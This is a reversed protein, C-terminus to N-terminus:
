GYEKSRQNIIKMTKITIKQSQKHMLHIAVANPKIKLLFIRWRDPRLEWINKSIKKLDKQSLSFGYKRFLDLYELVRAQDQENLKDILKNVRKDIEIIM